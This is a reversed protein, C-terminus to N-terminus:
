EGIALRLAEIFVRTDLFYNPYARRLASISDVSVLVAESGPRQGIERETRLYDDTAEQLANLAYGRVAVQKAGPDLALLFYRAHPTAKTTVARLAAGM